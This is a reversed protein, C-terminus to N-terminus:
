TGKQFAKKHTWLSGPCPHFVQLAAAVGLKQGAPHQQDLFVRCSCVNQGPVSCTGNCTRTVTGVNQMRHWSHDKRGTKVAGRGRLEHLLCPQTMRPMSQPFGNGGAQKKSVFLFFLDWFHQLVSGAEAEPHSSHQLMEVDCLCSWHTGLLGERRSRASWAGSQILDVEKRAEKADVLSLAWIQGCTIAKIHDLRQVFTSKAKHKRMM